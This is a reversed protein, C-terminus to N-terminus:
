SLSSISLCSKIYEAISHNASHVPSLCVTYKGGTSLSSKLVDKFQSYSPIPDYTSILSGHTILIVEGIGPQGASFAQTFPQSTIVFTSQFITVSFFENFSTIVHILPSAQVITVNVTSLFQFSLSISTVLSFIVILFM